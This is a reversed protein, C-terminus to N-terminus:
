TGSVGRWYRATTLRAIEYAGANSYGFWDWTGDPEPLGLPNFSAADFATIIWECTTGAPKWDRIISRVSAVQDPTATTGITGGVPWSAGGADGVSPAWPDTGGIPYIIVWFRSWLTAAAGDWNWNGLALNVSRTGNEEITYWNGARDVTRIKCDAQMYARLQMMLAFPNGRVRHDDLWRQLRVAYSAAPENIGRVIKRDRGLYTLADPPAYAPFRADRGLKLRELFADKIVGLSYDVLEGEGTTLWSPLLKYFARRFRFSM